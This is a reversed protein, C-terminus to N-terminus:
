YTLEIVVPVHDSAKPAGRMDELTYAKTLHDSLSPSLLIHDIRMGKNHQWAAARYDWWSFGPTDPNALRYADHLGLNMIRRWAEREAQNYCVTGELTEPAYVDIPAPAINYDGAVALADYIQRQTQLFNELAVLFNLKYKFKESGVEQGNPVYVSIVRIALKPTPCITASILRAHTPDPNGPFGIEVDELPFKSLIAVGNYSKQGSIAFNYGLHDFASIPFNESITKLEQLCVIDPNDQELWSLLHPLRQNISNVNYTCISLEM